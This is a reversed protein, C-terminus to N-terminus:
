ALHLLILFNGQERKSIVQGASCRGGDSGKSHVSLHVKYPGQDVITYRKKKM